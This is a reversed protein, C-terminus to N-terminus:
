VASGKMPTGNGIKGDEERETRLARSFSGLVLDTLRDAPVKGFEPLPAIEGGIVGMKRGLADVGMDYATLIAQEFYMNPKFKLTCAHRSGKRPKGVIFTGLYPIRAQGRERLERKVHELIGWLVEDVIVPDSGKALKSISNSVSWEPYKKYAFMTSPNAKPRRRKVNAYDRDILPM